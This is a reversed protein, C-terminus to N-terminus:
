AIQEVSCDCCAGFSAEKDDIGPADVLHIEVFHRLLAYLALLKSASAKVKEEQPSRRRDFVRYLHKSKVRAWGACHWSDSKYEM